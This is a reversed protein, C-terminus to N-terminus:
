RAIRFGTFPSLDDTSSVGRFASRIERWVNCYSGGRHLRRSCDGVEWVSGDEPAGVYNGNWCDQVWEAVNGHMDHLGWRNAGLSGVPVTEPGILPSGCTDYNAEGAGTKFGFFSHADNGWHYATATGARTVYEWEAESLLRYQQGTQESLWRAYAVAEEWSVNIVPRRGRGYGFEDDPQVRGTEAAFRDYEAFTVEYVGVAFPQEITVQHVPQEDDYCGRGSVCGMMFSGAPVVVMEPGQGGSRLADSFTQGVRWQPRAYRERAEEVHRGQPYAVLYEGYAAATDAREAEAYAADDAQARRAAEQAQRAAEQLATQRVRAEDAHRGQPYAALYDGYAAATDIRQAQAYAADDAARAQRAAEERAAQEAAAQAGRQAEVEQGLAILADAQERTLYGTEAMGKAAQWARIAQRTRTTGGGFLGDAPGPEYGVAALGQQVLRRAARDLGLQGELCAWAEAVYRGTPYVELYVQVQRRSKCEVSEWFLDEIERDTQGSVSAPVLLFLPVVVWVTVLWSLMFGM